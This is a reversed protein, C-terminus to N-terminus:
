TLSAYFTEQRAFDVMLIHPAHQCGDERGQSSVGRRWSGLTLVALRTMNCQLNTVKDVVPWPRRTVLMWICVGRSEDGWVARWRMM